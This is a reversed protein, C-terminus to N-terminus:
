GHDRAGAAPAARLVRPFTLRGVNRASFYRTSLVLRHRVTRTGVAVSKLHLAHFMVLTRPRIFCIPRSHSSRYMRFAHNACRPSRRQLSESPFTDIAVIVVHGNNMASQRQQVSLRGPSLSLSLYCNRSSFVCHFDREGITRESLRWPRARRSM